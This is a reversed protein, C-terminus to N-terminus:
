SRTSGYAEKFIRYAYNQAIEENPVFITPIGYEIYIQAIRKRLFNPHARMYKKEYLWDFKENEGVIIIPHKYQSMGELERIFRDWNKGLNRIFEQCTKKREILVGGEEYLYDAYDLKKQSMTLSDYDAFTWENNEKERTDYIIDLHM